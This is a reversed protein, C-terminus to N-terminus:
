VRYNDHLRKCMYVRADRAPGRKSHSIYVAWRDVAPTSLTTSVIENKPM